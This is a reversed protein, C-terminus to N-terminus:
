QVHEVIDILLGQPDRIMFHNQGWAEEVYDLAIDLSSAQATQWAAKANSVDFSIIAGVNSSAAHLFDPQSPHDPLLFGLQHGSGPHVLHLYFTEDFFATTFGFHTSYFAQLDGLSDSVFLPFVENIEIM